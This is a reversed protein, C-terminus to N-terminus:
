RFRILKQEMTKIWDSKNNCYEDWVEQELKKIASLGKEGNTDLFRFNAMRMCFANPNIGLSEALIKADKRPMKKLYAYLAIRTEEKTWKHKKM